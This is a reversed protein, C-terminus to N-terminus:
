TSKDWVTYYSLNNTFSKQNIKDYSYGTTATKSNSEESVWGTEKNYNTTVMMSVSDSAYNEETSTESHGVIHTDFYGNTEDWSISFGSTTSFADSWYVSDIISIRTQNITTTNDSTSRSGALAMKIQFNKNRETLSVKLDRDLEAIHEQSDRSRNAIENADYAYTNVLDAADASQKAYTNAERAIVNAEVEAGSQIFSTIGGALLGIDCVIANGVNPGFLTGIARCSCYRYCCWIYLMKLDLLKVIVMKIVLLKWLLLM